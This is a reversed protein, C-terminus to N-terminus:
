QLITKQEENTYGFWKDKTNNFNVVPDYIKTQLGLQQVTLQGIAALVTYQAIIKDRDARVLNVRANLLEQEADLVDLVTRAGVV